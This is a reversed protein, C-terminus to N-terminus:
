FMGCPALGSYSGVCLKQSMSKMFKLLMEETILQFEDFIIGNYQDEEEGLALCVSLDRDDRYRSIPFKATAIAIDPFHDRYGRYISDL